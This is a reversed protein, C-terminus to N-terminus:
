LKRLLQNKKEEYEEDTIFGSELLKKLSRIRCLVDATDTAAATMVAGGATGPANVDYMGAELPTMMQTVRDTMQRFRAEHEASKQESAQEKEQKQALREARRQERAQKKAQKKALVKARNRSLWMMVLAFLATAFVPMWSILQEEKESIEFGLTPVWVQRWMIAAAVAGIALLYVIGRVFGKKVGRYLLMFVFCLLALAATAAGFPGLIRLFENTADDLWLNRVVTNWWAELREIPFVSNVSRDDKGQAAAWVLVRLQM